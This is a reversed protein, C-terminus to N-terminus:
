KKAPVREVQFSGVFNEFPFHYDAFSKATVTLDFEIVGGDLPVFEIRRSVRLHHDLISDLDFGLGQRGAGSCEFEHIIKAESYRARVRQRLVEWQVDDASFLAAPHIKFSITASLDRSSLTVKKQEPTSSVNWGPPPLFTFKNSTTLLIYGTLPDREPMSIPTSFLRFEEAGQAPKCFFLLVLSLGAARSQSSTWM